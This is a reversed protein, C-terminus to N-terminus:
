YSIQFNHTQLAATTEASKDLDMKCSEYVQQRVNEMCSFNDLVGNSM